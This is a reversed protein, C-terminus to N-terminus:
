RDEDDVLVVMGGRAIVAVVDDIPAFGEAAATGIVPLQKSM